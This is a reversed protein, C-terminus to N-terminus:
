KEWIIQKKGRAERFIAILLFLYNTVYLVSLDRTKPVLMMLPIALALAPCELLLLLLTFIFIPFLLPNLIYLFINIRGIWAHLKLKRKANLKLYRWWVEILHQARRTKKAIKLNWASPFPNLFFADPIMITRYGKQVLNLASGSDDCSEDFRQLLERKYLALAGEFVITSNIKSEGIRIYNFLQRHQSETRTALTENSNIPVEQGCVAAVSPDSLYRIANRFSDPTWLCDADSTAIIDGSAHQLAYNLATAKGGRQNEELILTNFSLENKTIYTKAISATRDTSASDVIIVELKGKPYDVEELNQLKNVIVNAENYTAVIVTATPQYNDSLSLNWSGKEAIRKMIVYYVCPIIIHVASFIALVFLVFSM